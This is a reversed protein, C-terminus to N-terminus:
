SQSITPIDDIKPSKLETALDQLMGKIEKRGEDGLVAERKESQDLRNKGLWVLMTNDKELAKDYQVERLLADGLSRKESCYATFGMKYKEEVRRYLTDPHMDFTAAIETGLCGAMLLKDVRAWDIPKEPRTM